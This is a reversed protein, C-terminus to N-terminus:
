AGDRDPGEDEGNLWAALNRVPRVGDLGHLDAYTRRVGVCRSSIECTECPTPKVFDPGAATRGLEPIRSPDLWSADAFCLPVGCEGTLGRWDLGLRRCANLAARLHPRVQEFGPIM